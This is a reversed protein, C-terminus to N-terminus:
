RDAAAPAIRLNQDFNAESLRPESQSVRQRGLRSTLRDSRDLFSYETRLAAVQHVAHAQRVTDPAAESLGIYRV